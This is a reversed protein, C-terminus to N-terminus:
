LHSPSTKHFSIESLKWTSLNITASISKVSMNIWLESAILLSCVETDETGETRWSGGGGGGRGPNLLYQINAIFFIPKLLFIKSPEGVGGGGGGGNSLPWTVLLKKM